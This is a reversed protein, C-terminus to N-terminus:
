KSGVLSIPRGALKSIDNQITQIQEVMINIDDSVKNSYSSVIASKDSDYIIGSKSGVKDDLVKKSNNPSKKASIYAKANRCYM